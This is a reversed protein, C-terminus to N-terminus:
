GASVNGIPNSRYRGVERKLRPLLDKAREMPACSVLLEPYDFDSDDRTVVLVRSKPANSRTGKIFSATNKGTANEDVIVVHFDNSYRVILTSAIQPDNSCNVNFGAREAAKSLEKLRKMNKSVILALHRM